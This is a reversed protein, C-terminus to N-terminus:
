GLGQSMIKRVTGLDLLLFHYRFEGHLVAISVRLRDALSTARRALIPSRFLVSLFYIITISGETGTYKSADTVGPSHLSSMLLFKLGRCWTM